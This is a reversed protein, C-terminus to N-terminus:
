HGSVAGAADTNTARTRFCAVAFVVLAAYGLMPVIFAPAIAGAADAVRAAIQPLLAGGIIGFVLLGSTASTPATSRELTLTFITPFMISNFLGISLAAYAATPGGVQSVVLCLLGAVATCVILLLAAPIWRMLFSGLFRGVMAGGWYLAVMKGATEIPANLVDPSELFNTLMGGIAVESGVYVFIALAGFVAWKSSLAKLPSVVEGSTKPASANITKRATFIFVAVLAFFAGMALFAMDISRLSQNRTAATVVAGAAFVGGTLLVHAGLWPGVTTGLSNFAQSFNLRFHSSKRSGLEAVLPNAAVQLLTVGSAIVFLAILVGPYWDAATAAPVILCGAVMVILAGIISRSYGLKALVTAAPLSMVGYAIFWAFTTLFAEANNLDFVRKVAAILPDILSTAFGWAFFLTTVYAFATTAGKAPTHGPAGDAGTDTTM